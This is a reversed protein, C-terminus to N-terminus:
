GQPPAAPVKRKAPPTVTFSESVLDRLQDIETLFYDREDETGQFANAWKIAGTPSLLRWLIDIGGPDSKYPGVDGFVFRELQDLERSNIDKVGLTATMETAM